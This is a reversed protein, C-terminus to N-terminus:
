GDALLKRIKEYPVPQGRRLAVYEAAQGGKSAWSDYLWELRDTADRVERLAQERDAPGAQNLTQRAQMLATLRAQEDEASVGSLPDADLRSGLLELLARSRALEGLEFATAYPKAPWGVFPKNLPGAGLVAVGKDFLSPWLGGVDTRADQDLVLGRIRQHAEIAAALNAWAAGRDSRKIHVDALAQRSMLVFNAHGQLEALQAAEELVVIARRTKGQSALLKGADLLEREPVQYVGHPVPLHETGTPSQQDFLLEQEEFTRMIARNVKRLSRRSSLPSTEALVDLYDSRTAVIRDRKERLVVVEQEDDFESSVMMAIMYARRRVMPSLSGDDLLPTLEAMAAARQRLRMGLVMALGTRAFAAGAPMNARELLEAARRYAAAGEEPQSLYGYLNARASACDARLALLLPMHQEPFTEEIEDLASEAMELWKLSDESRIRRANGYVEHSLPVPGHPVRTAQAIIGQVLSLDPKRSGHALSERVRAAIEYTGWESVLKAVNQSMMPSVGARLRLALPLLALVGAVVLLWLRTAFVGGALFPFTGGDLFIGVTVGYALVVRGRVTQMLRGQPRGVSIMMLGLVYTTVALVVGMWPFPGSLGGAVWIGAPGAALLLIAALRALRLTQQFQRFERTLRRMDMVDILLATSILVGDVMLMMATLLDHVRLALLVAAVVPAVAVLVWVSNLVRGVDYWPRQGDLDSLALRYQMDAMWSRGSKAWRVRLVVYAAVTAATWLLAASADVDLAVFGVTVGLAYEPWLYGAALGAAIMGLVPWFGTSLAWNLYASLPWALAGGAVTVGLAFVWPYRTNSRLRRVRTGTVIATVALLAVALVISV